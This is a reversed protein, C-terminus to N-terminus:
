GIRATGVAELLASAVREVDARSLRLHLPLSMLRDSAGAARPCTDLAERYM